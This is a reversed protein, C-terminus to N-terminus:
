YASKEGCRRLNRPVRRATPRAPSRLTSRITPVLSTDSEASMALTMSGPKSHADLAQRIDIDRMKRGYSGVRPRTAVDAGSSRGTSMMDAAIGPSWRAEGDWRSPGYPETAVHQNRVNENEPGAWSFRCSMAKEARRPRRRRIVAFDRGSSSKWSGMAVAVPLYTGPDPVGRLWTWADDTLQVRVIAGRDIVVNRKRFSLAREALSLVVELNASDLMLTVIGELRGAPPIQEAYWAAVIRYRDVIRYQVPSRAADRRCM